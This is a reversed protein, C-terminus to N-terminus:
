GCFNHCYNRLGAVRNFTSRVSMTQARRGSKERIFFLLCILSKTNTILSLNSIWVVFDMPALRTFWNIDNVKNAIEDDNRGHPVKVIIKIYQMCVNRSDTFIHIFTLRCNFFWLIEGWFIWFSSHVQKQLYSSNQLKLWLTLLIPM